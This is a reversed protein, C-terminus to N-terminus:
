LLNILCVIVDTERFVNKFKEIILIVVFRLLNIYTYRHADVCQCWM